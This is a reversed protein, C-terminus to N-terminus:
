KIEPSSLFSEHALLKRAKNSKRKTDKDLDTFVKPVKSFHLLLYQVCDTIHLTYLDTSTNALWHFRLM